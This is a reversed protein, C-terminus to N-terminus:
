LWSDSGGLWSSQRRKKKQVPHAKPQHASDAPIGRKITLNDWQEDSMTSIGLHEALAMNYIRCDHYHNPGVEVWESVRRGASERQRLQENTLQRFYGEDNQTSFYCYGPPDEDAGERVGEKKLNAYLESKLPYIGIPWLLVGAKIRKGGFTVEAKSPTGVAPLYWGASGKLPMINGARKAWTYVANTNYGSDIGFLDIPWVQGKHEYRREHVDWLKSWVENAPDSTDGTLFGTDVSWSRKGRGWAVVEYYIGDKQVDAAATLFLGGDPITGIPWTDRRVFLKKWEPADGHEEWTEALGTNIFKKLKQIDDQCSLWESVLDSLRHRISYLKSIHFGAHGNHAVPENCHVCLARGADTWVQPTQHEGCCSFDRTQRWGKDPKNLIARVTRIREPESWGAGCAQCHIEATEPLENGDGDKSWKVQDWKLVQEHACHPCEVFCRRQDSLQFEKDIRSLGKVTPSCCRVKKRNWFTSAREEGLSLPDGEPGASVPYKDIEDALIIRKPRSALDMPSNAGVFDLSGGPYDKHTITVGSDRSKADPILNRLAPTKARTPAFREKSFNEAVTQTPQIFLISAPEQHIYYGAINILIETKVVQTAAVVSVTETDPETVALMPGYAVPQRDTRWKGPQASNKESVFRFKDAWEVVNLRPPPKLTQRRVKRLRLM